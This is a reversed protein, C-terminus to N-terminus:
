RSAPGDTWGEHPPCQDGTRLLHTGHLHGPEPSTAPRPMADVPALVSENTFLVPLSFKASFWEYIPTQLLEAVLETSKHEDRCQLARGVSGLACYKVEKVRLWCAPMDSEGVLVQTLTQDPLVLAM